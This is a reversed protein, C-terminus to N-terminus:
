RVINFRASCSHLCDSQMEYARTSCKECFYSGCFIFAGKVQIVRLHKYWNLMEPLLSLLVLYCLRTGLDQSFCAEIRLFPGQNKRYNVIYIIHRYIIYIYLIVIYKIHRPSEVKCKDIIQSLSFISKMVVLM